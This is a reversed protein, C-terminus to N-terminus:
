SEVLGPAMRLYCITRLDRPLDRPGTYLDPQQTGIADSITLDLSEADIHRRHLLENALVYVSAWARRHSLLRRATAIANVELASISESDSTIWKLAATARRVDDIGGSFMLTANLGWRTYKAQAVPGAYCCIAEIQADIVANQAAQRSLQQRPVFGSFRVAETLGRFYQVRNRRDTITPSETSSIHVSYPLTGTLWYAVAHGAEHIATVRDDYSFKRGTRAKM